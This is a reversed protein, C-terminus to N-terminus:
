FKVVEGGARTSLAQLVTFDLDETLFRASGDGFSMGAVGPHDSWLEGNQESNIPFDVSFTNEGDAWVGNWSDGSGSDEGVFMTNSTGDTVESLKCQVDQGLIWAFIGADNPLFGMSQSWRAGTIGGYDTAGRGAKTLERSTRDDQMRSTSPCLFVPLITSTAQRNNRHDFERDFRFLDYVQQQEIYPLLFVNWSIQKGADVDNRTLDNRSGIVGPPFNDSIVAFNHLGLSIQKLNNMCQSRRAAERAAQIAPLLLAVLVGIIAIVVLLEVLTFGHAPWRFRRNLRLAKLRLWSELPLRHTPLQSQSFPVNRCNTNPLKDSM